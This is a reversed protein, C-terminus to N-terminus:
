GSRGRLNVLAVGSLAITGGALSLLTPVEGLWIWAIVIAMVPFIYLYSAAISAPRRSLTYAWTVYAVAGPFLGLYIVAATIDLPARSVSQALGPFFLLTWLTGAWFTYATLELASYKKLLPKQFVFYVSASLSSLLILLAGREFRFGKGEGLAILTAGLFSLVIGLWGWGKLREGLFVTALLAMFIPESAVLLSAAGATVTIEGFTLGVHYVTFGSFGLAILRVLDRKEPLRMRMVVGYIVFVASTILFRFLVLHGPSYAKLGVRIGAFASAWLVLTTGAAMLLRLDMNRVPDSEEM